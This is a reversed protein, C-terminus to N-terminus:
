SRSCLFFGDVGITLIAGSRRLSSAANWGEGAHALYTFRGRRELPYLGTDVLSQLADAHNSFPNFVVLVTGEGPMTLFPLSLAMAWASLLLILAPM